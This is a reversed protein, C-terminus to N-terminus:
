RGPGFFINPMEEVVPMADHDSALVCLGLSDCYDDHAEKDDPPAQCVMNQGKYEKQLSEMQERFKRYSRLSRTKAHACITLRGSSIETYLHKWLYSKSSTNFSYPIVEAIGYLDNALRDAIPTGVGTSDIYICKINYNRLFDIIQHYQAEYDDGLLELWNIVAKKPRREGTVENVEVHDWDVKAVTVVTSDNRKGCDIGAVCYDKCSEMHKLGRDEIKDLMEPSVFMGRELIWELKYSIRFADSDEGLRRKEKEIFKKYLPNYKMAVKYDYEYHKRRYGRKRSNEIDMRKNRRITELFDCIQNNPTGIKVITGNVAASMPHISKQIKMKDIDQCEELIIWHYTKSEIQAQKAASHMQVISGNSLIMPNAYKDLTVGIEPDSLIMQARKSVIRNRIRSFTTYAQEISPAFIGIWIGDKYPKLLKAFKPLAALLPIIVVMGSAIVSIAETKGSQRSFLATFEEGDNLIISEVVAEAFERQYPHLKIGAQAECYDTVKKVLWPIDVDPSPDETVEELIEEEEAMKTEARKTEAMKTETKKTGALKIGGKNRVMM